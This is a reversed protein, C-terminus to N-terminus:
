KIDLGWKDFLAKDAATFSNKQPRQKKYGSFEAGHATQQSTVAHELNKKEHKLRDREVISLALDIDEKFDGSPKIRGLYHNVLKKQEESKVISNIYETRSREEKLAEQEALIERVVNKLDSPQEDEDRTERKMKVIKQEARQKQEELEQVRKKYFSVDDTEDVTQKSADEESEFSDTNQEETAAMQFTTEDVETEVADNQNSM